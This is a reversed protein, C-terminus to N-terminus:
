AKKSVLSNALLETLRMLDGYLYAIRGDDPRLKLEEDAIEKKIAYLKDLHKTGEKKDIINAVPIALAILSEWM